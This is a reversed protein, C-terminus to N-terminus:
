NPQWIPLSLPSRERLGDGGFAYRALCKLPGGIDAAQYSLLSIGHVPVRVPEPLVCRRLRAQVSALPWADAYLGATVHPVYDSAVAHSGSKEFCARLAALQGSAEHVTFYPVSTFTDLGGIEIEFPALGLQRMAQVQVEILEPGFDDTHVPSDSPFGCLGLTIHPQRTYGDLLLDALQSQAAQMHPLVATTDFDPAWLSYAPRGLHWEVFDRRVNRVTFVEPLARLAPLAATASVAPVTPIASAQSEHSMASLRYADSGPFVGIGRRRKKDVM